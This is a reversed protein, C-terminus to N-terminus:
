QCKTVFYYNFEGVFGFREKVLNRIIITDVEDLEPVILPEKNEADVIKLIKGVIIFDGDRGTFIGQIDDDSGDFLDMLTHNTQEELYRDYSILIGYMFYQKM